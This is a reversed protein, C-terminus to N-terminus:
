IEAILIELGAEPEIKGQKISTDILFIKQYIKKLDDLSFKILLPTIKKIVFFHLGSKKFSLNKEELEKLIILNKFQYSIMLLLYLPSDGKELHNQLLRLAQSKDKQSIAEITKFVDSKTERNTLLLIEKETIKKSYSTLKEIENNVKWLDNSDVLLSLAQSDIEAGRKKIEKEAWNKIKYPTLLNFKQYKVNKLLYSVLSDKENLKQNESILIINKSSIFEEVKQFFDEKFKKNKFLNEMLILKKEEFLSSQSNKEKLEKLSSELCDLYVFSLGNKEKKYYDLIEKVKKKLRFNDEGYFFIIM